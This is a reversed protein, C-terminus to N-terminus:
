ACPWSNRVGLTLAGGTGKGIAGKKKKQHALKREVGLTSRDKKGRERRRGGEKKNNERKFSLCGKKNHRKKM